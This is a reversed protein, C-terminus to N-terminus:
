RLNFNVFILMFHKELRPCLTVSKVFDASGQEVPLNISHHFLTTTNYVTNITYTYIYPKTYHVLSFRIRSIMISHM